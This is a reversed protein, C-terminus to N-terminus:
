RRRAPWLAFAAIVIVPISFVLIWSRTRRWAIALHNASLVDSQWDVQLRNLDIALARQVGSGCTAGDAYTLLLNRMKEEGWRAYIYDVVSGSESYALAADNGDLPFTGCLTGLSLLADDRYAAQLIKKYAPVPDSEHRIALGENLWGPLSSYDDGLLRYLMVHTLEHPIVRRMDLYASGGPNIAVFVVSLSPHAHGGVWERGGVQLGSRLHNSSSYVYVSTNEPPLIELDAAIEELANSAVDAAMQGYSLDGEYWYLTVQGSRAIQWDFRNDVYEVTYHETEIKHSVGGLVLTIIWWYEVPSFPPLPNQRLDRVVMAHFRPPPALAPIDIDIVESEGHVNRVVLEADTLYRPTDVVLSFTMSDGFVYAVSSDFQTKDDEAAVPLVLILIPAVLIALLMTLSYIRLLLISQTVLVGM